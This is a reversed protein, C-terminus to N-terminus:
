FKLITGLGTPHALLLSKSTKPLHVHNLPWDYQNLAHTEHYNPIGSDHQRKLPAAEM